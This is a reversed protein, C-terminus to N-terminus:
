GTNLAAVFTSQGPLLRGADGMVQGGGDAGDAAENQGDGIRVVRMLMANEAADRESLALDQRGAHHIRQRMEHLVGFHHSLPQLANGFAHAVRMAQHGAGIAAVIGLGPTPAASPARM